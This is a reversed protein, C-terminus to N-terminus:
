LIMNKETQHTERKNFAISFVLLRLGLQLEFISRSKPRGSRCKSTSLLIIKEIEQPRNKM